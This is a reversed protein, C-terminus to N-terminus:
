TERSGSAAELTAGGHSGFARLRRPEAELVLVALTGAHGECYSEALAPGAVLFATSLADADAGSETVVTASLVGTAPWGTRPDLVHGYRRGDVEFFQEGSGSTAQAGDRLHLRFLREGEVRKSRVDVSFGDREIWRARETLIM